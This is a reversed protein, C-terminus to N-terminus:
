SHRRARTEPAARERHLRMAAATGTLRFVHTHTWPGRGTPTPTGQANLMAAIRRYPTNLERLELITVLVDPPCLM